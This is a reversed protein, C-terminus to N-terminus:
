SKASGAEGTRNMLWLLVPSAVYVSSYTGVIVGMVLCFAFGHIGEGGIAYLIAVVIFTTLSTLITRSLTQNLSANIMDETLAPNKGRVERIRDFVVITDNLSYGVITMFAAIMPLNIKFDELLLANGIGQSSLYSAMAVIGLVVLVDHVLAAVAALGFTIQQFRFWIYAVIAALSILMALIASQQMETAVSSAFSNVGEFTPEDAMVNKMNELSAKLDEQAIGSSASVKIKEFRRVQGENSETGSGSVGAFEVLNEPEEYKSKGDVGIATLQDILHSKATEISVESSFTMESSNGGAFPDKPAVDDGESEEATPISAVETYDMTIKVLEKGSSDLIEGVEMRVKDTDQEKTRLRFRTGAGSALQEETDTSLTLRELTITNGLIESGSLIEKVEDTKQPEKFEFTIMAGGSFDIDLNEEGRKILTGMGAIILVGSIFAAIMKGSLFNWNTKKVISLMKLDKLWRKKECIDFILRGFYLATFMSMVIGVFLTVAFGRVQDTGIMYLVVATILTTLNADVITTFARGFGNQIAMRLSSGRDKEERIREFILVNADVAMGITLVIGALGPLTFTADILAMTGMVLILNLILCLDAVLGAFLYYVLMFIVVTMAAIIIAIRGKEQVDNGLTPSITFESIPDPRIPVVLAGANLVSILEDIEARTFQGEIIGSGRIVANVTPASHVEENLLVALRTRFGDKQPQYRGTLDGFLSAGRTNFQFGVAPSGSDSITPYVRTLYQGTVRRNPKDFVVLFEIRDKGTSDKQVEGNVMLPRTVAESNTSSEKEVGNSDLASPLWAAEVAGDPYLITKEVAQARRIVDQHMRRSALVAFELSGLQTMQRKKQAVVDPDAGPIIVEIRDAGVKRVTVEETGSPNIRKQVATVMQSMVENTIQKDETEEVQFVMNTGGALDIGFRLADKIPHGKYIQWVFPSIGFALTFLVLGIRGSMEKLKLAHAIFTGLVFPLIFVLFIVALIVLGNGGGSESVKEATEATKDQALILWETPMEIM